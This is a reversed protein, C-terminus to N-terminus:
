PAAISQTARARRAPLVVQEVHRVLTPHMSFYTAGTTDPNEITRGDTALLSLISAAARRVSDRKVVARVANVSRASLTQLEYSWAGILRGTDIGIDVLHTTAAVPIGHLLSWEITSRGRVHPLLAWHDNIIGLRSGGLTGRKIIFGLKHFSVEIGDTSLRKGIGFSAPDDGLDVFDTPSRTLRLFIRHITPHQLLWRPWRDAHQRVVYCRPELNHERLTPILARFFWPSGLLGVRERNSRSGNLRAGDIELRRLQDPATAVSGHPFRHLGHRNLLSHFRGIALSETRPVRFRENATSFWLLENFYRVDGTAGYGELMFGLVNRVADGGLHNSRRFHLRRLLEDADPRELTFRTRWATWDFAGEKSCLEDVTPWRSRSSAPTGPAAFAFYAEVDDADAPRALDLPPPVRM